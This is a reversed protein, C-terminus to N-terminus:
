EAISVGASSAEGEGLKEIEAAVMAQLRWLNRDRIGLEELKKVTNYLYGAGSGVHGCARALVHAVEELPLIVWYDAGKPEAWFTLARVKGEATEVNMWRAGSLDEHSGVERRLLLGIQAAHDGEPVRYIMGDCSGGRRLGMMLGRQQPSGRWRYLELCFARHWGRVRARRHETGDGVPKWLLSGYAFVWLPGTGHQELLKLAAQDYDAETFYDYRNQPGPDPEHRECRAVMEATLAM